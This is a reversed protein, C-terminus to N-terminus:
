PRHLWGDARSKPRLPPGRQGGAPAAATGALLVGRGLFPRRAVARYSRGAHFTDYAPAKRGSGRYPPPQPSLQKQGM